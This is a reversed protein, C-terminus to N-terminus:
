LLYVTEYKGPVMRLIFTRPLQWHIRPDLVSFNNILASVLKPHVAVDLLDWLVTGVCSVKHGNMTIRHKTPCSTTRSVPQPTDKASAVSPFPIPPLFRAIVLSM